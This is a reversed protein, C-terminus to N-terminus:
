IRRNEAPIGANECLNKSGVGVQGGGLVTVSVEGRFELGTWSGADQVGGSLQM